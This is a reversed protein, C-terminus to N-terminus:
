PEQPVCARPVDARLGRPRQHPWEAAANAHRALTPSPSTSVTACFEYDDKCTKCDMPAAIGTSAFDSTAALIGTVFIIITLKM